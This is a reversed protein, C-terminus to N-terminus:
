NEWSVKFNMASLDLEKSNLIFDRQQGKQHFKLRNYKSLESM